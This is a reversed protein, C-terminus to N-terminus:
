FHLIRDAVLAGLVLPLYGLTTLFLQRAAKERSASRLFAAARWLIWIGGAAAPAGYWADALHLRVPALSVAVLLVTCTFSWAAVRRGSPDRVPLMPFRVAAYDNRYIWAIAMFHPIQWLFLIGFLIWGLASIRGEGASWGILPPLAGAFAGIETSWRSWRKAPTYWGLYVAMTLLTCFAALGNVNAFVIGLAAMCLGAGLVFASGTTVRNTPIPRDATRRMRADTDSELWQNLAAVGGAALSTGAIVSLLELPIFPPRASLYAVLATLVSLLSLRPKTLELYDAFRAPIAPAELASIGSEDRNM